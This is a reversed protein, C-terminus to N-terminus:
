SQVLLSAQAAGLLAQVQSPPDTPESQYAEKFAAIAERLLHERTASEGELRAQAVLAYGREVSEPASGSVAALALHVQIVGLSMALGIIWVRCVAQEEAPNPHAIQISKLIRTGTEM